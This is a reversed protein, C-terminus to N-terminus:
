NARKAEFLIIGCAVALNLSEVGNEMPIGVIEDIKDREDLSLGHSESGFMLLTKRTWNSDLYCKEANVDACITTLKNSKSWEIVEKFKANSWIPIRFGAGMAGRLANSSFANASFETTIVGLVGAAEAVRLIAGLNSPNNVKHLVIVIPSNSKTQVLRDEIKTKGESPKEGLLIIGQSTKLDSISPFLSDSVRNKDAANAKLIAFLNSNSELASFSESVFIESLKINSKLAEEALTVGEIFITDSVKGDRVRRAFKLRKNDRSQIEHM